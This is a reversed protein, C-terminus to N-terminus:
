RIWEELTDLTTFTQALLEWPFTYPLDTPLNKGGAAMQPAWCTDKKRTIPNKAHLTAAEPAGEYEVPNELELLLEQLPWKELVWLSQNTFKSSVWVGNKGGM